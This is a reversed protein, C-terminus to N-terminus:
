LDSYFKLHLKGGPSSKSFGVSIDLTISGDYQRFGIGYAPKLVRGQLIDLLDENGFYAIPYDSFIFLQSRNLDGMLLEITNIIAWDALFQNEHYGRISNIGGLKVKKSKQLEGGGMFAYEGQLLLRLVSSGFSRYQDFKFDAEVMRKQGEKKQDSVRGLSYKFSWFRGQSPMWRNNRRDGRLGIIVADLNFRNDAELDKGNETKGGITWRGFPGVGIIMGSTSELIYAQELFEQEFSILTGLPLGFPFPTELGFYLSRTKSDPQQWQLDM